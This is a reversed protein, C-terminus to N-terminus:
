MEQRKNEPDYVASGCGPCFAHKWSTLKIHIQMGPESDARAYGMGIIKNLTPSHAVSTIHGAVANGDLILNSEKPTEDQAAKISFGILKRNSSHQEIIQLSRRRCFRSEGAIAWAMNAEQPTTM